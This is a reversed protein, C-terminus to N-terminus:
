ENNSEIKKNLNDIRRKMADLEKEIQLMSQALVHNLSTQRTNQMITRLHNKINETM